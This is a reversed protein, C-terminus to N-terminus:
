VVLEEEGRGAIVIKGEEELKRAIAVINAQAKEVDSVKVPGKSEMEEELIKASRKSMNRLVKTKLSESATKLALSLDATDVEKLIQQIGRDDVKDIDEFVFMIQRISDALIQDYEEIKELVLHETSRDSANLIEAITKAGGVKKGKGRTVDMEKLVDELDELIEEPISDINAIRMSVDEKLSKPLGSLVAAAQTPELVALILAITQPHESSLFSALTKADIWRLSDLMAGKTNLDFMADAEGEFVKSLINKVYEKAGAGFDGSQIKGIVEETVSEAKVVDVTDMTGMHVTLKGIERKELNKLIEAAVDEGVLRLFIAAKDLGDVAM